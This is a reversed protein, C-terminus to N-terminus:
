RGGTTYSDWKAPLKKLKEKICSFQKTKLDITQNIMKEALEKNSHTQKICVFGIFVFDLRFLFFFFFVFLIIARSQWHILGAAYVFHILTLRVRYFSSFVFTIFSKEKKRKECNGESIQNVCENKKGARASLRSVTTVTGNKGEGDGLKNILSRGINLPVHIM